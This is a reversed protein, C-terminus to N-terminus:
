AQRAQLLSTEAVTQRSDELVGEEQTDGTFGWHVFAEKLADEASKGEQFAKFPQYFVMLDIYHLLQTFLRSCRLRDEGTLGVLSEELQVAVEKAMSVETMNCSLSEAAAAASPCDGGRERLRMCGDQGKDRLAEAFWSAGLTEELRQLNDQPTTADLQNSSLKEPPEGELENPDEQPPRPGERPGEGHPAIAVAAPSDTCVGTFPCLLLAAATAVAAVGFTKAFRGGSSM